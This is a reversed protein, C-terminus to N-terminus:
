RSMPFLGAPTTVDPNLDSSKKELCVFFDYFQPLFIPNEIYNRIMM